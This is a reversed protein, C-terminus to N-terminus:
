FTGAIRWSTGNYYSHDDEPTHYRCFRLHFKGYELASDPTYNSNDYYYIGKLFYLNGSVMNHLQNYDKFIQKISKEYGSLGFIQGAVPMSGSFSYLEVVANTLNERILGSILAIFFDRRYWMTPNEKDDFLKVFNCRDSGDTEMDGLPPIAFTENEPYMKNVQEGLLKEFEKLEKPTLQAQLINMADNIEQSFIPQEIEEIPFLNHIFTTFDIECYISSKLLGRNM